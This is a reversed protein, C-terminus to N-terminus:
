NLRKRWPDFRPGKPLPKIILLRISQGVSSLFCQADQLIQSVCHRLFRRTVSFLIDKTQRSLWCPCLHLFFINWTPISGVAELDETQREGLHAIPVYISMLPNSGSVKTNNASRVLRSHWVLLIPPGDPISGSDHAGLACIRGSFQPGM